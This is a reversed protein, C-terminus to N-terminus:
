HPACIHIGKFFGDTRIIRRCRSCVCFEKGGSMFREEPRVDIEKSDVKLRFKRSM